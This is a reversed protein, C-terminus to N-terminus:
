TIPRCRTAGGPRTLCARDPMRRVRSWGCGGQGPYRPIAKRESGLGPGISSNTSTVTTTPSCCLLRALSFDTRLGDFLALPMPEGPLGFDLGDALEDGIHALETAPFHRALIAPNALGLDASSDLVYPFPIEQRSRGAEVSIEYDGALLDLQETLYDAFLAPRTITSAYVGDRNMRGFARIIGSRHEQGAYHVRLEPYCWSGDSRREAPPLTGDRAFCEIDARLTTIAADHIHTLEAIIADTSAM